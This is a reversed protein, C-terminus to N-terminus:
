DNARQKMEKAIKRKKIQVWIMHPLLPGFFMPLTILLGWPKSITLNRSVIYYLPLMSAALSFLAYCVLGVIRAIKWTLRKESWNVELSKWAIATADLGAAPAEIKKDVLQAEVFQWLARRQEIIKRTSVLLHAFGRFIIAGDASFMVPEIHLRREGYYRQNPEMYYCAVESWRVSQHFLGNTQSIGDCDARISYKMVPWWLGFGIACFIVGLM